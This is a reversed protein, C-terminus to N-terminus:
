LQVYIFQNIVPINKKILLFATELERFCLILNEFQDSRIHDIKIKQAFSNEYSVCM